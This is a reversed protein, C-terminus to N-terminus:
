KIKVKHVYSLLQSKSTGPDGCLLVNIDCRQHLKNAYNDNNNVTFKYFLLFKISSIDFSSQKTAFYICNKKKKKKGDNASFLNFNNSQSSGDANIFDM